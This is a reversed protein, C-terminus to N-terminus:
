RQELTSRTSISEDPSSQRTASSLEPSTSAANSRLHTRAEIIQAFLEGLILQETFNKSGIVIRDSHRSCGTVPLLLVLVLLCGIASITDAPM